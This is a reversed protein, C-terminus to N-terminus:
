VQLMHHYSTWLYDKRGIVYLGPFQNIKQDPRLSFNIEDRGKETIPLTEWRCTVSPSDTNLLSLGAQKVSEEVIPSIGNPAALGVGALEEPLPPDYTLGAELIRLYPAVGPFLSSRLPHRSESMVSLVTTNNTQRSVGAGARVQASLWSVTLSSSMGEYEVWCYIILM